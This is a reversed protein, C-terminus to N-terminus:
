KEEEKNFDSLAAVMNVYAEWIAVEKKTLERLEEREPMSYLTDGDVWRMLKHGVIYTNRNAVTNDFEPIVNQLLQNLLETNNPNM